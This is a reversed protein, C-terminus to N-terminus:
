CLTHLTCAIELSNDMDAFNSNSACSLMAKLQNFDPEWTIVIKSGSLRTYNAMVEQVPSNFILTASVAGCAWRLQM